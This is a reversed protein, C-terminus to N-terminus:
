NWITIKDDARLLKQLCSADLEGSESLEMLILYGEHMWAIGTPDRQFENLTGHRFLLMLKINRNTV